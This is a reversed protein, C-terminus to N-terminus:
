PRVTRRQGAYRSRRRYGECNLDEFGGIRGILDDDYRPRPPMADLALIIRQKHRGAAGRDAVVLGPELERRGGTEAGDRAARDIAPFRRDGGGSLGLATRMEQEARQTAEGAHHLGQGTEVAAADVQRSQRRAALGRRLPQRDRCPRRRRDTRAQKCDIREVSFATSTNACPAEPVTSASSSSAWASPRAM